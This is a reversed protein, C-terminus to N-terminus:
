NRQGDATNNGSQQRFAPGRNPQQGNVNGTRCFRGQHPGSCFECHHPFLCNGRTNCRGDNWRDCALYPGRATQSSAIQSRFRPPGDYPRSGRPFRGSDSAQSSPRVTAPRVNPHRLPGGSAQPQQQGSVSRSPEGPFLYKTLKLQECLIGIAKPILDPKERLLELDDGKVFGNAKLQAVGETSLGIIGAVEEIPGISIDLELPQVQRNEEQVPASPRGAAPPASVTANSHAAKLASFLRDVLQAKNGAIAKGLGRLQSRLEENSKKELNTRSEM